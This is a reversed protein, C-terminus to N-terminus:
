MNEFNHLILLLTKNLGREKQIRINYVSETYIIWKIAKRPLTLWTLCYGREVNFM